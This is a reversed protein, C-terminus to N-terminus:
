ATHALLPSGSLMPHCGGNLAMNFKSVDVTKWQNPDEVHLVEVAWNNFLKSVVADLVGEPWKMARNEFYFKNVKAYNPKGSRWKADPKLEYDRVTMGHQGKSEDSLPGTVDDLISEYALAM